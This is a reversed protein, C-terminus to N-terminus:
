QSQYKWQWMWNSKSQRNLKNQSWKGTWDMTRTAYNDCIGDNNADIFSESSTNTWQYGNTQSPTYAFSSATAFLWIGLVTASLIIKKNM